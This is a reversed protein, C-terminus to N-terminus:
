KKNEERQIMKAIEIIKAEEPSFNVVDKWERFGFIKTARDLYENIKKDVKKMEAKEEKLQIQFFDKLM